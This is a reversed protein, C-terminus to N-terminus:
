VNDIGSYPLMKQGNLTFQYTEKYQANSAYGGFYSSSGNVLTTDENIVLMRKVTRDDFGRLRQKIATSDQALNVVEHDMNIYQIPKNKLQSAKKPDIVEDILLTPQNITFGTAATGVFIKSLNADTSQVWEIVLRMNQFQSDCLLYPTAKLFPLALTLDLYSSPTTQNAAGDGLSTDLQEYKKLLAKPDAGEIDLAFSSKNLTRVVNFANANTRQLNAFALYQGASRLEAIEISNNLLVIRDILAYAGLHSAYRTNREQNTADVKGGAIICGLDALRLNSLYVKQDLRFECRRADSFVPDLQHTIIDDALAM